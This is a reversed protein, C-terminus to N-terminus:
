ARSRAVIRGLEAAISAKKPAAEEEEPGIVRNTLWDGANYGLLGGAVAGARAGRTSDFYAGGAGLGLGTGAVMGAGSGVGRLYGRAGRQLVKGSPATAANALGRVIGVIHPVGLAIMPLAQSAAADIAPDAAKKRHAAAKEEDKDRRNMHDYLAYLGGAGLGLGGAIALNQPTLWEALGGGQPEPPGPSVVAQPVNAAPDPVGASAPSLEPAPPNAQGNLGMALNNGSMGPPMVPPTTPAPGRKAIPDRPFDADLQALNPPGVPGNALKFLLLAARNAM